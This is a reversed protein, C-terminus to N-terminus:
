FDTQAAPHALCMHWLLFFVWSSALEDPEWALSIDQKLREFSQNTTDSSQLQATHLLQRFSNHVLVIYNSLKKIIVSM